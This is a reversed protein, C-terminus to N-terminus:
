KYSCYSIQVIYWQDLFLFTEMILDILTVHGSGVELLWNAFQQNELSAGLLCMNQQLKLVNHWLSSRQLSPTIFQGKSGKVIVLFKKHFDKGFVITLRGFPRDDHHIDHLICDIAKPCHQRQM